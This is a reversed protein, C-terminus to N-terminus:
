KLVLAPQLEIKGKLIYSRNYSIYQLQLVRQLINFYPILLMMICSNLLKIHFFEWIAMRKQPYANFHM